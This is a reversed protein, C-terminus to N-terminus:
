RVGRYNRWVRKLDDDWSKVSVCCRTMTKGVVGETRTIVVTEWEAIVRKVVQLDVRQEFGNLLERSQEVSAAMEKQPKARAGEDEM